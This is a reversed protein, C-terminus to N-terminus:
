NTIYQKKEVTLTYDIFDKNKEALGLATIYYSVGNYTINDGIAPVTYSSKLRLTITAEQHNDDLRDEVERGNEDQVQTRLKPSVKHSFSQVTAGSVTGRCGFLHATGIDVAAM